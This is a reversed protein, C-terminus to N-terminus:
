SERVKSLCYNQNCEVCNVNSNNKECADCIPQIPLHKDIKRSYFDFLQSFPLCSTGKKCIICKYEKKPEQFFDTKIGTEEILNYLFYPFCNFCLYHDCTFSILKDIQQGCLACCKNCPEVEM